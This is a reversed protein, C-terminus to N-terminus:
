PDIQVLTGIPVAKFFERADQMPLRICGHSAPYGPLEGAHLGFDGCSLRLYYPMRADFLTSVWDRHKDTVLYTGTPTPTSSKGSSIRSFLIIKDDQWLVVRQDGLDVRLRYRMVDSEPTIGMLHRMVAIHGARAALYLPFTKSKGTRQHPDAGAAILKLVAPEAGLAAAFMLPTFGPEKRLYYALDTGDYHKLFDAPGPQPFATDPNTGQDLLRQLWALDDAAIASFLALPDPAPTPTPTPAPLPTPDPLPAPPAPLPPGGLLGSAPPPAEGSSMEALAAAVEPAEDASHILAPLAVGLIALLKILRKM